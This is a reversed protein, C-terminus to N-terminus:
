KYFFYLKQGCPAQGCPPEAAKPPETETTTATSAETTTSTDYSVSSALACGLIAFILFLVAFFKM